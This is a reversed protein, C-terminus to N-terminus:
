WKGSNKNNVKLIYITATISEFNKSIGGQLAEFHSSSNSTKM